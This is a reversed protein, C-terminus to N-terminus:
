LNLLNKFNKEWNQLFNEKQDNNFNECNKYYPNVCNDLLLKHKHSVFIFSLKDIINQNRIITNLDLQTEIIKNLDEFLKMKRMSYSQNKFCLVPFLIEKLSLNFRRKGLAQVNAKKIHESNNIVNLERENNLVKKRNTTMTNKTFESRQININTIQDPDLNLMDKPKTHYNLQSNLSVINYLKSATKTEGLKGEYFFENDDYNYISNNIIENYYLKDSFYFNILTALMLIGKLLGGLDAIMNQAKYYKRYFKQKLQYMNLSIVMFSGPITPSARLDTAERTGALNTYEYVENEPFIYGGDSEYEVNRFLYWARKYASISAQQLDSYVYPIGTEGVLNHDFYYDRFRTLVFINQLEKTIYDDPYCDKKTTSNQCKHLWFVVGCYDNEGFLRISSINQGPTICYSDNILKQDRWLDTGNAFNRSVDCKEVKVPLIETIQKTTGDAQEVPKNCWTQATIGYIREKEPIDALLRNQLMVSFEPENWSKVPRQNFDESLLVNFSTRSFLLYIFYGSSALIIIAALISLLGGFLTKSSSNGNIFFKPKTGLYDLNKFLNQM